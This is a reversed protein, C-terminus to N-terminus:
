GDMDVFDGFGASTVEWYGSTEGDREILYPTVEKYGKQVLDVCFSEAEQKRKSADGRRFSKTREPEGESLGYCVAIYSM